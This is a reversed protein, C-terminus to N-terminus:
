RMIEVLLVWANFLALAMSLVLAWAFWTVGQSHGALLLAAAIFFPLTAAQHM